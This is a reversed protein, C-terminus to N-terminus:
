PQSPRNGKKGKKGKWDGPPGGPPFRGPGPGKRVQAGDGFPVPGAAITISGDDKKADESKGDGTPASTLRLHRLVEEATLLGDDNRDMIAFEEVPKGARMWEALSVQGDRNTDLETFWSPMEKPVKKYGYVVVPIDEVEDIEIKTIGEKKEASKGDDKKDGSKEQRAKEDEARRQDREAQRAEMYKKWEALSILGDKNEDWKQWEDKFNRTQAIEAANLFGDGNTDYRKFMAEFDPPGKGGKKDDGGGPGRVQERLKDRQEWYKLFQDKTIKGDPIKEQKVFAELVDRDKFAENVFFYGRGKSMFFDFIKDPDGKGGKPGKPGRPGGDQGGDGKRQGKQAFGPQVELILHLCVLISLTLLLM